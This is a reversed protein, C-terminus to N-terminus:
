QHKGAAWGNASLVRTAFALPEPELTQALSDSFRNLFGFLACISVIAIIEDESFYQRVRDYHAQSAANPMAGSAQALALASREKDDFLDSQEFEWVAQIKEDAVGSKSASLATHAQCYLCGASRSTIYSVLHILSPELPNSPGLTAQALAMFADCIEPQRVLSKLNNPVYGMNAQVLEFVQSYKGWQENDKNSIHVM